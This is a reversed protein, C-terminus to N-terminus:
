AIGLKERLEREEEPCDDPLYEVDLGACLEDLLLLGDGLVSFGAWADSVASLYWSGVQAGRQAVRETFRQYTPWDMRVAAVVRMPVDGWTGWIRGTSLIEGTDKDVMRWAEVKGLYKSLYSLLSGMEAGGTNRARITSVGVKLHDLDGRAAIDNWSRSAWRRFSSMEPGTQDAWFLVLHFHPVFHGVRSGSKREVLELKWIVGKLRGGYRRELRKRWAQLQAKTQEWDGAGAGPYTLTVFYCAQAGWDIAMLRAIMRKRSEQSFGEIVGRRGGGAAEPTIQDPGVSRAKVRLGGPLVVMHAGATKGLEHVGALAAAPATVLVSPRDAGRGSIRVNVLGPQAREGDGNEEDAM